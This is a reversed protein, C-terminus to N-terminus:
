RKNFVLETLYGLGSVAREIADCSVPWTFTASRVVNALSDVDVSKLM